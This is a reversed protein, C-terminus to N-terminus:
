IRNLINIKWTDRLINYYGEAKGRKDSLAEETKTGVCTLTVTKGM